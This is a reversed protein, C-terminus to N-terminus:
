HLINMKEKLEKKNSRALLATKEKDFTIIGTDFNIHKINKTNVICSRHTKVFTTPNNLQKEINCITERIQYKQSKTVIVSSNNNINKEIYLIDRYPIQYMEGHSLFCLSKYSSLIDIAIYLTNLLKTTVDGKKSIFDLMLIKDQYSAKQYEEYNTIIIIPSRWDGKSRIIKALELGNKGDVKIALLYIKNGEIKNLKQKTEQNYQKFLHIKYNLNNPGMLKTIVQRYTNIYKTDNEYIIFNMKTVGTQKEIRDYFPLSM